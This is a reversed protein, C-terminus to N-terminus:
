ESKGTLDSLASSMRRSNICVSETGSTKSKVQYGWLGDDRDFIAIVSNKSNKAQYFGKFYRGKPQWWTQDVSNDLDEKLILHARLRVSSVAAHFDSDSPNALSTAGSILRALDKACNAESWGPLSFLACTLAINLIRVLM